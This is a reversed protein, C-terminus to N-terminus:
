ATKREPAPWAGLGRPTLFADFVLESAGTLASLSGLTSPLLAPPDGRRFRMLTSLYGATVADPDAQYMGAALGSLGVAEPDMANVLSGIGRGLAAAARTLARGYRPDARAAAIVQEAQVVRDGPEARGAARLLGRAGADLEWCGVCGCRCREDGGTLPMHGFEGASGHAGTAPLGGSLLVGGIGTAVHLHLAVSVGRLVGRRAEALGALTADNGALVPGLGPGLVAAVDIDQWDPLTPQVMAGHNVPSPVAIGVGVVRGAFRRSAVRLRGALDALVGTGSSADREQRDLVTCRGTLEFAAVTYSDDRLDIALAVPGEPHLSPVGTPRGRARQVAAGATGALEEILRRGALDRVLVTATGRALGLQRTLEARTLQGGGDHIARLLRALNHTRLEASTTATGEDKRM